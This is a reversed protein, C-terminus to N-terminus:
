YKQNEEHQLAHARMFNLTVREYVRTNETNYIVQLKPDKYMEDTLEYVGLVIVYIKTILNYLNSLKITNLIKQLHRDIIRFRVSM